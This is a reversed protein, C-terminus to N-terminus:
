SPKIPNPCSAATRRLRDHGRHSLRWGRGPNGMDCHTDRRVDRPLVIASYQLNFGPVKGSKYWFFVGRVFRLFVHYCSVPDHVLKFGTEM